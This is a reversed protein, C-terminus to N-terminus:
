ALVVLLAACSRLRAERRRRYSGLRQAVLRAEIQSLEDGSERALLRAALHADDRTLRHRTDALIM